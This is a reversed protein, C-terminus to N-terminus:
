NEILKLYNAQQHDFIFLPYDYIQARKEKLLERNNDVEKLIQILEPTSYFFSSAQFEPVDDFSNHILMPVQFGYALNFAGSIQRTMYEENSPTNPHILPLIVHAEAILQFYDNTPIFSEFFVFQTTQKKSKVLKKLTQYIENKPDSKGAFVFKWHHPIENERILEILGDLDKRRREVGGSLVINFEDPSTQNKNKAYDFFLPYFVGINKRKEPTIKNYLLNSLVFYQKIKLSIIRQTFSGELKKITHLIGLVKKRYFLSFFCFDRVFSGQATNFVLTDVKWNKCYQKIEKIMKRHGGFANNLEAMYVQECLHHFHKTNEFAHPSLIMSVKHKRKSLFLVQSYLCEDHSSELEILVIHKPGKM